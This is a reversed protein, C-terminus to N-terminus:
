SNKGPENREVEQRLKGRQLAVAWVVMSVIGAAVLGAIIRTMQEWHATQIIGATGFALVLAVITQAARNYHFIKLRGFSAFLFAFVLLFVLLLYNQEAFGFLIESPSALINRIRRGSSYSKRNESFSATNPFCVCTFLLNCARM